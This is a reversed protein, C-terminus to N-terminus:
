FRKGAFPYKGGFNLKKREFNLTRWIEFQLGWFEVKMELNRSTDGM